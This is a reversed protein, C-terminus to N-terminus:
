KARYKCACKRNKLLRLEEELAALRSEVLDLKKKVRELELQFGQSQIGMAEVHARKMGQLELAVETMVM